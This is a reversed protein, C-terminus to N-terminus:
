TQMLYDLVTKGQEALTTVSYQKAVLKGLNTGLTNAYAQDELLRIMGNAFTEPDDAIIIDHGDTVDLGEAGLTTSVVPKSCAGVELIKFRTGSEFRLPVISLQTHFLYPLVSPIKGTATIGSEELGSFYKDSGRGVLYLHTEPFKERVRPLIEEITWRASDAMPSKESFFSGPLCISPSKFDPSKPPVDQFTDVDVVNAFLHIREPKEAISRFYEADIESVATTAEALNILEKEEQRIKEGEQQIELKREPCSEFPIERLIFRSFVVCTDCVIKIDPQEAKLACILDHSAELGRDCWIIDMEHKNHYDLIFRVDEALLDRKKPFGLRHKIRDFYTPHYDSVSPAFQFNSCFQQFHHQSEIGGIKELSIRIIAHLDCIRGLAKVCNEVSIQPGGAAPYEMVPSTYLVKVM